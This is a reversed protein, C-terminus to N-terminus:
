SPYKSCFYLYLAFEANNDTTWVGLFCSMHTKREKRTEHMWFSSQSKWSFIILSWNLIASHEFSLSLLILAHGVLLSVKSDGRSTFTRSSRTPFRLSGVFLLETRFCVSLPHPGIRSGARLCTPSLCLLDRRLKRSPLASPFLLIGRSRPDGPNYGKM